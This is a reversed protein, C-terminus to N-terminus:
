SSRVVGQLKTHLSFSVQVVSWGMQPILSLFTPNCSMWRAVSSRQWKLETTSLKHQQLVGIHRQPVGRKNSYCFVQATTTSWNRQQLLGSIGTSFWRKCTLCLHISWTDAFKPCYVSYGNSNGSHYLTKASQNWHREFLKWFSKLM